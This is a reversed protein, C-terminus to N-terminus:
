AGLAAVLKAVAPRGIPQQLPPVDQGDVHGDDLVAKVAVAAAHEEDALRANLRAPQHLDRVLAHPDADALYPGAGAKAIDPGRDLLVGLLVAVRHHALEAAMSDAALEMLLRLDQM